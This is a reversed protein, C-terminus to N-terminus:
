HIPKNPEIMRLIFARNKTQITLMMPHAAYAIRVNNNGDVEDILTVDDVLTSGSELEQLSDVLEMLPKYLKKYKRVVRLEATERDIPKKM